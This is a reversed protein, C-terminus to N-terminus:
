GAPPPPPPLDRGGRWQRRRRQWSLVMALRTVALAGVIVGILVSGTAILVVALLLGLGVLVWRMAWLSNMSGGGGM